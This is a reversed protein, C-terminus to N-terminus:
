DDVSSPSIMTQPHATEKQLNAVAAKVQMEIMWQDAEEHTKFKFVGRPFRPILDAAQIKKGLDQIGRRYAEPSAAGVRRGVTKGITEEINITGPM